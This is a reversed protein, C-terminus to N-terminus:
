RSASLIVPDIFGRVVARAEDGGLLHGGDDLHDPTSPLSVSCFGPEAPQLQGVKTPCSTELPQTNNM